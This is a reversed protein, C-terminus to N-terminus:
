QSIPFFSVCRKSWSPADSAVDQPAHPKGSVKLRAPDIQRELLIAKVALARQLSLQQNEEIPGFEDSYGIIELGKQPNNALWREIWTLKTELDISEIDSSGPKFYIRTDIKMPQTGVTNTVSEIGPIKGFAQTAQQAEAPNAVIGSVSVRGRDGTPDYAAAIANGERENFIEVTREVEAATLGSYPPVDITAIQSDLNLTPEISEVIAEAQTKLTPDPVRGTLAITERRVQAQLGYVSLEPTSFLASNLRDTAKRDLHNRYEWLGWPISIAGFLLVGIVALAPPGKRPPKGSTDLLTALNQQLGDPISDRDGEFTAIEKDYDRVIARFVQRTRNIYRKSPEGDTVVALYSHGAVELFIKSDGYTIDNLEGNGDAASVYESVFSRMATLMGAVMDSEFEPDDPNETPQASAITLGSLKHILFVMRISFPAAEALLLESESVGKIKARIKRSITEFSLANEVKDNVERMTEAIAKAVTDGIIPYFADIAAEASIRIQEKFAAAMEPAIALAMEDPKDQIRKAIAPPLIPAIAESMSDGSQEANNQIARDIVPALATSLANRDLQIQGIIAESVIPALSTALAQPQQEALTAIAANIEEISGQRLHNKLQHCVIQEIQVGLAQSFKGQSFLLQTGLRRELRASLQSLWEPEGQRNNSIDTQSSKLYALMEQCQSVESGLLLEQLAALPDDPSSLRSPPKVPPTNQTSTQRNISLTM